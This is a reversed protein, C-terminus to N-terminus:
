GFADKQDILQVLPVLRVNEADGDDGAENMGCDVQVRSETVYSDKDKKAVIDKPGQLLKIGIVCSVDLSVDKAQMPVLILQQDQHRLSQSGRKAKVSLVIELDPVM